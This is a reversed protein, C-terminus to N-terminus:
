CVGLFDNLSVSFNILSVSLIKLFFVTSRVDDNLKDSFVDLLLLLKIICVPCRRMLAHVQLQGM